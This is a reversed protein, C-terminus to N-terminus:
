ITVSQIERVKERIAEIEKDALRKEKEAQKVVTLADHLDNMVTKLSAKINEIQQILQKLPSEQPEKTAAPATTTTATEQKPMTTREEPQVPHVSEAPPTTTTATTQTPPTIPPTVPAPAPKGNPGNPNLPMVIMKRGKCKFVVPSLEDVLNIESLGFQLARIMYDRNLSVFNTRGKVQAEIIPVALSQPVSM